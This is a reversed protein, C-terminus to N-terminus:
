SIKMWEKIKLRKERKNKLNIVQLPVVETKKIVLKTWNCKNHDDAHYAKNNHM